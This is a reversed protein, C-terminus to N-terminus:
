IRMEEGRIEWHTCTIKFGEEEPFKKNFVNAVEELKFM